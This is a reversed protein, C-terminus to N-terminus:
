GPRVCIASMPGTGTIVEDIELGARAVLDRFDVMSRERGGVLSLMELDSVAVWRADRPDAPQDIADIITLCGGAPLTRRCARLISLAEPDPWDHLVRGLIYADGGAPVTQLVDATVFEVRDLLDEAITERAHGLVHPLDVVVGRTGPNQRLVHQLVYGLGGAVDVVVGEAPWRLRPLLQDYLAEAEKLAGLNFWRSFADDGAARDFYGTSHLSAYAPAGTRVSREMELLAHHSDGCLLYYLSGHSEPLLLRSKANNAFTAPAVEDFVDHAALARLLRLTAARDCGASSALECASRQGNRLLEAFGLRTAVRMAAPIAVSAMRATEVFDEVVTSVLTM